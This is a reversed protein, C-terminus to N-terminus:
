CRSTMYYLGSTLLLMETTKHYTPYLFIIEGTTKYPRPIRDTM